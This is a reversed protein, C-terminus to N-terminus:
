EMPPKEMNDMELDDIITDSAQQPAKDSPQLFGCDYRDDEPNEAFRPDGNM